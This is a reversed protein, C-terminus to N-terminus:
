VQASTERGRQKGVALNLFLLVAGSFAIFLGALLFTLMWDGTTDYLGGAVPPGVLNGVGQCFLLFGYGASFQDLSILEVLIPSTLSYNASICLGYTASLILVLPYSKVCPIVATVVGCVVMCAAYLGHSSVWPLDAVWGVVVEGLTNLVGIVSLVMTSETNPINLNKEVYGITYVYPVDYWFYLIFNSLCFLAFAASMYTLSACQTLSRLCETFCGPEEDALDGMSNRYIDPCSSARRRYRLLM